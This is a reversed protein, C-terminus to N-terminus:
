ELSESIGSPDNAPDTGGRHRDNQNVYRGGYDQREKEFEAGNRRARESVLHRGEESPFFERNAFQQNNVARSTRGFGIGEKGPKPRVFPDSQVVGQDAAVGNWLQQGDQRVFDTVVLFVVDNPM